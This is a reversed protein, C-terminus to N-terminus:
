TLHGFNKMNKSAGAIQQKRAKATSKPPNATKDPKNPLKIEPKIQVRMIIPATLEVPKLRAMTCKPNAIRKHPNLKKRQKTPQM